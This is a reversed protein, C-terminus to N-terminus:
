YSTQQKAQINNSRRCREALLLLLLLLQKPPRSTLTSAEPVWTQPNLGPRLLRIKRTFFDEARRGESTFYLRRDWTTFKRCTFSGFTVHCDGSEAFNEAIERGYNWRGSSPNTESTPSVQHRSNSRELWQDELNPPNSTGSAVASQKFVKRSLISLSLQAPWFGCPNCDRNFLLLLLLLWSQLNHQCLHANSTLILVLRQYNRINLKM